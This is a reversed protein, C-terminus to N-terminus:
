GPCRRTALGTLDLSAGFIGTLFPRDYAVRVTVDSGEACTAPDIAVEIATPDIGYATDRAVQQAAAADGSVTMERAAERAAGTVTLQANYVGGFEIVGFLILILIPLVLAFEVAAAGREDDRAREFM